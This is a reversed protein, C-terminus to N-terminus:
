PAEGPRLQAALRLRARHLRSKMAPLSLDLAQAAEALSLGEADVLLLSARDAPALRELAQDLLLRDTLRTELDARLGSHGWGAAEALESLPQNDRESAARRWARHARRRAPTFLWSRVSGENRFRAASRWAALFTEQVLDEADAGAGLSRLFRLVPGGHRAVLVEFARTDGGASRALLDADEASLTGQGPM